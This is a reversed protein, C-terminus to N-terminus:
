KGTGWNLKKRLIEFFTRDKLHIMKIYKKSHAVEVQDKHKLRLALQGDMTLITEGTLSLNEITINVDEPFIIPRNTLTHPCIPTLLIMDKTPYVIPGGSSLSYATSGTPSSVIVGDAYFYSLFKKDVNIKLNIVRAIREISIVVDNLAIGSFINKKKRKVRAKLLM